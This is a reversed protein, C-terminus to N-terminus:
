AKLLADEALPRGAMSVLGAYVAVGLAIATIFLGIGFLPSSPDLTPIALKSLGGLLFAAASALVGFRVLLVVPVASLTVLLVLSFLGAQPGWLGALPLSQSTGWLLCLVSGAIWTKRCIMRLLLFIMMLGLAAATSVLAIGFLEGV